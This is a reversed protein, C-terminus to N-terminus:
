YSSSPSSSQIAAVEVGFSPFGPAWNNPEPWWGIGGTCETWAWAKKDQFATGAGAKEERGESSLNLRINDGIQWRQWQQAVWSRQWKGEPLEPTNTFDYRAPGSSDLKWVRNCLCLSSVRGGWIPRKLNNGGKGAELCAFYTMWIQWSLSITVKLHICSFREKLKERFGQSIVSLDVSTLISFRRGRSKSGKEWWHTYVSYGRLSKDLVLFSVQLWKVQICCIKLSCRSHALCQALSLAYLPSDYLCSGLKM